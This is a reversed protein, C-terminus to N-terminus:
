PNTADPACGANSEAGPVLCKVQEDPRVPYARRRRDEYGNAGDRIVERAVVRRVVLRLV